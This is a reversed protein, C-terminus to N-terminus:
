DSLASAFRAAPLAPGPPSADGTGSNQQPQDKEVQSAPGPAYTPPGAGFLRRVNVANQNKGMEKQLPRKLGSRHAVEFNM